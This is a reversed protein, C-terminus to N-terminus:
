RSSTLSQGLASLQQSGTHDRGKLADLARKALLVASEPMGALQAVKLGHSDRNVGPRLRHSYAFHNDDTEHVDTCFFGVEQFIGSGCHSDSYGLMDALEHFHTAFLARCQNQTVLYHVVAFAIALGDKVTTGRGVEDMIVLSRPTARRLIEATELMEVMFTSRDRFLDDKAGVRSFLRDVVGIVAHDAPVFSGTQALIAILAVQRLFTSKGAMNPGTIIHLRSDSELAVSNPTFVRGSTLLGLEVTPHRGNTVEYTTDDTIVPRTFQMEAALSAFGLTVDLEDMIRANRRLDTAFASVENRLLNFAEKEANTIASATEVLQNGLSSWPQYFYSSTSGSESIGIFLPSIKVATQDRKSRGIHVHMGQAPSSRLTLSPADVYDAQLQREMKWRQELLDVLTNHLSTLHSSFEPRIFCRSPIDFKCGIKSSEEEDAPPSNDNGEEDKAKSQDVTEMDQLALNIRTELAQLDAMRCMLVDVSSWEESLLFGRESSEMKRELDLCRRITSWVNITRSISVLDGPDGRGLLFRQVIRTTDEVEELFQRVDSLLHPRAHFFAVLSQRAQIEKVSTSPKCLWRALLRTGSRTATRKVVSLLSGTTGGERTSEKIELAKITHSDIQMREVNGERSPMSLRPMHELLNAHLFTTLIKIASTEEPSYASPTSALDEEPKIPDDPTVTTVLSDKVPTEQSPTAYSVFYGEDVLLQRIPHLFEDQLKVDLVVERPCIRALDDKLAERSSTKAFFEGTSVDIWALGVSFTGDMDETPGDASISLLYNNEYQNIFPEDILTGPTIVRVVRRDFEPKQGHASYRPFEECMAVFRKNQEVLVKLYKDLHMLPFGCMAINQKDWVRSTLKINLLRAVEIAQDFYSEYFQGVRTLLICHPFKALNNLIETALM